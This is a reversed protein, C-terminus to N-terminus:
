FRLEMGLVPGQLETRFESQSGATKLPDDYRRLAVWFFRYGAHLSISDSLDLRAVASFDRVMATAHTLNTPFSEGGRLVLGFSQDQWLALELGIRPGVRITKLVPSDQDGVDFRDGEVGVSAALDLWASRTYGFIKHVYEMTVHEWRVAPEGGLVDEKRIVGYLGEVRFADKRSLPAEIEVSGASGQRDGDDAWYLAQVGVRIPMWDDRLDDLPVGFRDHRFPMPVPGSLDEFTPRPGLSRREAPPDSPGDGPGDQALSGPLPGPTVLDRESLGLELSFHDPLLVIEPNGREPPPAPPEVRAVPDESAPGAPRLVMVDDVTERRVVPAGARHSSARAFPHSFTQAIPASTEPTPLPVAVLGLLLGLSALTLSRYSALEGRVQRAEGIRGSRHLTACRCLLFLLYGLIGSLLFSLSACPIALWLPAQRFFTWWAGVASGAFTAPLLIAARALFWRHYLRLPDM